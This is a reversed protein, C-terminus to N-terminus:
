KSLKLNEYVKNCKLQTSLDTMFTSVQSDKDKSKGSEYATVLTMRLGINLMAYTLLSKSDKTYLIKDMNFLEAQREKIGSRISNWLPSSKQSSIQFKKM